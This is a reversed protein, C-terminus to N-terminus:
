CKILSILLSLKGIVVDGIFHSPFYNRASSLDNEFTKTEFLFYITFGNTKLVSSKSFSKVTFVLCKSFVYNSVALNKKSALFAHKQLSIDHYAKHIYM